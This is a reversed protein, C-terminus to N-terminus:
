DGITFKGIRNACPVVHGVRWTARIAVSDSNFYADTSTAVQIEGYASIVEAADIVLGLSLRLVGHAHQGCPKGLLPRVLVFFPRSGNGSVAGSRRDPQCSKFRYRTM